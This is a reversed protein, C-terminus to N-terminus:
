QAISSPNIQQQTRISASIALDNLSVYKV